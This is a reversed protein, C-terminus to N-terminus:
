RESEKRPTRFKGDSDYFSRRFKTIRAAFHPSSDRRLFLSITTGGDDFRRPRARSFYSNTEADRFISKHIINKGHYKQDRTLGVRIPWDLKVDRAYYRIFSEVSIIARKCPVIKIIRVVIESLSTYFSFMYFMYFTIANILIDWSYSKGTLNKFRILKEGM